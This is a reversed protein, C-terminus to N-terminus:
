KHLDLLKSLVPNNYDPKFQFVGPEIRTREGLGFKAFFNTMYNAQTPGDHGLVRKQLHLNTFEVPKKEKLWAFITHLVLKKCRRHEAGANVIDMTYLKAERNTSQILDIQEPSCNDRVWRVADNSMGALKIDLNAHLRERSISKKAEHEKHEAAAAVSLVEANEAHNVASNEFQQRFGTITTKKSM